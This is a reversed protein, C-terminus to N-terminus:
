LYSFRNIEPAMEDLDLIKNALGEEIVARPMGYVVCTKESQALCYCRKKDKLKILGRLSDQGMGTLVVALVRSGTFDEAVSEFLADAAPRVGNIPPSDDLYLENDANLRMHVGGPALYVTEGKIEEGDEAVKVRLGSKSNLRGALTEIFHPPMHQVILIPVSIDPRLAPIITELARPGGTSVAILIIQPRFFRSATIKVKTSSTNLKEDSDADSGAADDSRPKETGIARLIGIIDSIKSKVAEFNENYSNYIPKTMSDSAGASLAEMFIKASKSSPRSTVLIFTKPTKKIVLTVLEHLGTDKIEADAIFIDPNGSIISDAAEEGSSVCTVSVNEDVEEIARCFMKTYVPSSDAILIKINEMFM